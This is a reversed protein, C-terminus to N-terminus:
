VSSHQSSHISQNDGRRWAPWNAVDACRGQSHAQNARDLVVPDSLKDRHNIVLSGIAEAETSGLGFVTHGDKTNLTSAEWSDNSKQRTTINM